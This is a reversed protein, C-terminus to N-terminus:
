NNHTPPAHLDYTDPTPTPTGPRQSPQSTPEPHEYENPNEIFHQLTALTPNIQIRPDPNSFFTPMHAAIADIPYLRLLARASRTDTSQPSYTSQTYIQYAGTFQNVLADIDRTPVRNQTKREKKEEEHTMSSVLPPTMSSVLKDHPLQGRQMFMLTYETRVGKRKSTSILGLGELKAILRIIHRRQVGVIRALSTVSPDCTIKHNYAYSKLGALVLKETSSLDTRDLLTNPIKTHGSSRGPHKL